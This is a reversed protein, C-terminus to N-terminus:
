RPAKRLSGSVSDTELTDQKSSTLFFVVLGLSFGLIRKEGTLSSSCKM